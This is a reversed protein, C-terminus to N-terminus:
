NDAYLIKLTRTVAAATVGAMASQCRVEALGGVDVLAWETAGHALAALNTPSVLLVSDEAAAGWAAKLTLWSGTGVEVRGELTFQDLAIVSGGAIGIQVTARRKGNTRSSDGIQNLVENQTTDSTAFLGVSDPNIAAM